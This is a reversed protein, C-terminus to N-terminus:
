IPIQVDDNKDEEAQVSGVESEVLEQNFFASKSPDEM